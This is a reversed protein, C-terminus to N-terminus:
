PNMGQPFALPGHNATWTVKHVVADFTGAASAVGNGSKKLGGFPLHSEAAISGGNWYGLGFDCRERCERAKKFDNTCVGLSLGYETDNYIHIAEDLDKFPILAVHPGFVEQRLFNPMTTANSYEKSYWQKVKYVHPTLFFGDRALRKGELLIDVYGPFNKTDDNFHMVRHFQGENILPGYGVEDGQMLSDGVKIKSSAEVFRAVFDDFITQQILLRGSSVCRQGSLKYASAVCASLALDMDADDFVIVASKSGTECSCTKTWSDACVKKISKGVAASGTFCIHNVHPNSALSEGVHGDGHILNFVGPPFGAEEYLEAIIQGVMPTEESPKAVVTNGELLAPAACWFGAIAFPFNWPSIVAVVGKPKRIIYSDKAAIESAVIQGTPMRGMGFTYQAMHLAENVEALSENKTKGTELCIAHVIRTTHKKVADCLRDFYEARVVRSLRRWSEFAKRASAVAEDVEEHTSQPFMGVGEETCPNISNFDPRHPCFGEIYNMGVYM